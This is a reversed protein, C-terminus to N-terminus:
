GKKPLPRVVAVTGGSAVIGLNLLETIFADAEAEPRRSFAAYEGAIASRERTGDCLRWIAHADENMRYAKLRRGQGAWVLLGRNPLPRTNFGPNRLPNKPLVTITPASGPQAAPLEAPVNTAVGMASGTLLLFNRRSMRTASPGDAIRANQASNM